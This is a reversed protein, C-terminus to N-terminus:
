SNAWFSGRPTMMMGSFLFQAFVEKTIDPSPSGRGSEISGMEMSPIMHM